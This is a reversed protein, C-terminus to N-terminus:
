LELIGDRQERESKCVNDEVEKDLSAVQVQATLRSGPLLFVDAGLESRYVCM